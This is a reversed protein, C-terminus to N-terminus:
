IKQANKKQNEYLLFYSSVSVCQVKSNQDNVQLLNLRFYKCFLLSFKCM